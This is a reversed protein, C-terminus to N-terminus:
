LPRPRRRPLIGDKRAWFCVDARERVQNLARAAAGDFADLLASTLYYAMARWPESPMLPLSMLLFIVRAYGILNPVYILVALPSVPSGPMM